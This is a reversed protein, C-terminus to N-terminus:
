KKLEIERNHETIDDNSTIKCIGTFYSKIDSPDPYMNPINKPHNTVAANSLMQIKKCCVSRPPFSLVYKFM